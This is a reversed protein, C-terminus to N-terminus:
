CASSRQRSLLELGGHGSLVAHRAAGITVLESMGDLRELMVTTSESVKGVSMVIWILGLGYARLSDGEFLTAPSFAFLALPWLPAWREKDIMRCSVWIAGLLATGILFGLVRLDFDSSGFGLGVWIRLVAVFLIPFPDLVLSNLFEKLSPATAVYVSNVEDRWLPSTHLLLRTHVVILFLTM